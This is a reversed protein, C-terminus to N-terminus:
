EEGNKLYPKDELPKYNEREGAKKFILKLVFM